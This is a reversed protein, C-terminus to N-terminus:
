NYFSREIRSRLNPYMKRMLENLIDGRTPDNQNSNSNNIMAWDSESLARSDGSYTAYRDRWEVQDNV